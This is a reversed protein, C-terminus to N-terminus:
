KKKINTLFYLQYNNTKTLESKSKLINNFTSVLM